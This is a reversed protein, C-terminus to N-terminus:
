TTSAVRQGNRQMGDYFGAYQKFRRYAQSKWIYDSPFQHQHVMTVWQSLSMEVSEDKHRIVDFLRHPQVGAAYLEADTADMKILNAIQNKMKRERLPHMAANTLVTLYGRDEHAPNGDDEPTDQSRLFRESSIDDAPRPVDTSLQKHKSSADVVGDTTALLAVACGVILYGLRM